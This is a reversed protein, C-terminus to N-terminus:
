CAVGVVKRTTGNAKNLLNNPDTNKDSPNIKLNNDNSADNENRYNDFERDSIESISKELNNKNNIKQFHQNLSKKKRENTVGEIYSSIKIM